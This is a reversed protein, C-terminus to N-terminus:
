PERFGHRMQVPAGLKGELFAKDKRYWPVTVRVVGQTAIQSLGFYAKAFAAYTCRYRRQGTPARDEVCLFQTRDPLWGQRLNADMTARAEANSM